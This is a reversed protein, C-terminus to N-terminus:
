PQIRTSICLLDGIMLQNNIHVNKNNNCHTSPVLHRPQAMSSLFIQTQSSLFFFFCHETSLPYAMSFALRRLLLSSSSSIMLPTSHPTVSRPSPASSACTAGAAPYVEPAALRRLGMYSACFVGLLQVLRGGRGREGARVPRLM